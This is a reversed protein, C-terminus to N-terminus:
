LGPTFKKEWEAIAARLAAQIEPDPVENVGEYRLNGVNVLVGGGRSETLYIVKEALPTGAIKDQLIADIQEVMSLGAFGEPKAAPAGAPRAPSVPAPAATQSVPGPKGELLPRILTLLGIMRQRQEPTITASNVEVGDVRVRLPKGADLFISLASPEPVVKEVVQAEGDQGKPPTRPNRRDMLAFLYGIMFAAVGVLIPTLVAWNIHFTIM